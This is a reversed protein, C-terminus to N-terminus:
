GSLRAMEQDLRDPSCRTRVAGQIQVEQFVTRDWPQGSAMPESAAERGSRVRGQRAAEMLELKFARNGALEGLWRLTASLRHVQDSTGAYSVQGEDDPSPPDPWTSRLHAALRGLLAVYRRTLVELSSGSPEDFTRDFLAEFWVETETGFITRPVMSADTAIPPVNGQLEHLSLSHFRQSRRARQIQSVTFILGGVPIIVVEIALFVLRFIPGSVPLVLDLFLVIAELVGFLVVSRIIEGTISMRYM